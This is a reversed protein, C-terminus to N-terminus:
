ALKKFFQYTRRLAFHREAADSQKGRADRQSDKGV